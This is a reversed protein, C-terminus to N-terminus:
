TSSNGTKQLVALNIELTSSHKEKEMDKGGHVTVQTNEETKISTLHLRLTTNMQM